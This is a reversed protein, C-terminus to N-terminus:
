KDMAKHWRDPQLTLDPNDSLWEDPGGESIRIIDLAKLDEYLKKNEEYRTNFDKFEGICRCAKLYRWCIESRKVNEKQWDEKANDYAFKWMSDIKEIDRNKVNLLVPNKADEFITMGKNVEIKNPFPTIWWNEIDISVGSNKDIFNIFDIIGQAGDGYYAECFDYILKDVDCDPNWLLKAIMYTRLEAFEGDSYFAEYNGEEYVGIVNHEAFFKINEQLVDFNAYPALYQLYNTTYDWIHLNKCIKSWARIDETFKKNQDSIGEKLPSSFACELSCLRVIVNDRPVVTKPATRTYMYAFTDVMVNPYDDKIDDAIANVFNIMTGSQSGEAEDIKKCNECVCYNDNDNQTVSVITANPNAALWQRVGKIALELTEPNTLCLQDTTREGNKVGLAFIEPKENFLNRDVLNAFTHCFGGAYSIGGGYDEGLYGYICDNLGNAAKYENSKSPSIWDTARFSIAPTYSFDITKPIILKEAKPIVTLDYTFWHCDFYEELFNYVAYVAGRKEAGSLVIKEGVTKIVIGDDGMDTRDIAYSNGERNTKGIIIEKDAESTNDKVIELKDGSIENLYYQLKQAANQEASSANEGIVIVYEPTIELTEGVYVSESPKTFEHYFDESVFISFVSSLFTSIAVFFPIMYKPRIFEIQTLFTNFVASLWEM